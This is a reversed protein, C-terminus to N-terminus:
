KEPLQLERVVPGKVGPGQVVPAKPVETREVKKESKGRNGIPGYALVYVAVVLGIITGLIAAIKQSNMKWAKKHAQSGDRKECGCVV